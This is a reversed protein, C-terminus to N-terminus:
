RETIDRAEDEEAEREVRRALGPGRAGVMERLHVEGHQEQLARAVREGVESQQARDELADAPAGRQAHELVSVM